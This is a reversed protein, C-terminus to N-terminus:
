LTLTTYLTGPAFSNGTVQCYYNRIPVENASLIGTRLSFPFQMEHDASDLSEIQNETLKLWDWEGLEIKIDM